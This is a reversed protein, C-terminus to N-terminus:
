QDSHSENNERIEAGFTWDGKNRQTHSVNQLIATINKSLSVMVRQFAAIKPLPCLSLENPLAMKM